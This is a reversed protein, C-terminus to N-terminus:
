FSRLGWIIAFKKSDLVDIMLVFAGALGPIVFAIKGSHENADHRYRQCRIRCYDINKGPLFPTLRKRAHRWRMESADAIPHDPLFRYAILSWAPFGSVHHSEGACLAGDFDGTFGRPKSYPRRLALSFRSISPLLPHNTAFGLPM